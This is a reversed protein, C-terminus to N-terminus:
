LNEEMRKKKMYYDTARIMFNSRSGETPFEALFNDIEKVFSEGMSIMYGRKKPKTGETGKVFAKKTITMKSPNPINKKPM